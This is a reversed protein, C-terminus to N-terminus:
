LKTIEEESKAGQLITQHAMLKFLSDGEIIRCKQSIDITKPSGESSFGNIYSLEFTGELKEDEIKDVLAFYNLYDGHYVNTKMNDFKPVEFEIKGNCILNQKQIKYYPKVTLSL